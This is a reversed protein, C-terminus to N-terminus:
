LRPNMDTLPYHSQLGVESCPDLLQFSGRRLDRRELQLKRQLSLLLLVAGATGSLFRWTALVAERGDDRPHEKDHGRDEHDLQLTHLAQEEDKRHARGTEDADDGGHM